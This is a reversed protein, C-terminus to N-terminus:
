QLIKNLTRSFLEAMEDSLLPDGVFVPVNKSDTLFTHFEREQPIYPNDSMFTNDVDIYVPFSFSMNEIYRKLSTDTAKKPSVLIILAFEQDTRSKNYINGYNYLDKIRCTSCETSDIFVVLKPLSAVESFDETANGQNVSIINSSFAVPHSMMRKLDYSVRVRNCGCLPIILLLTTISIHNLFRKIIM